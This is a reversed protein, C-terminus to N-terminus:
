GTESAVHKHDSTVAIPSKSQTIILTSIEIRDETAHSWSAPAAQPGWGSVQPDCCGRSLAPITLPSSVGLARPTAVECFLLCGLTM